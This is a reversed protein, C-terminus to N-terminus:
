FPIDKLDIQEENDSAVANDIAKNVETVDVDGGNTLTNLTQQIKDIKEELRKLTDGFGSGGQSPLKFNYYIVENGNRDTGAKTFMQGEAEDGPKFKSMDSFSTYHHDEYDFEYRTKEGFKTNVVKSSLNNLLVKM